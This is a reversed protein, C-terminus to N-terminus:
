ENFLDDFGLNLKLNNVENVILKKGDKREEFLKLKKVLEEKGKFIGKVSNEGWPMAFFLIGVIEEILYPHFDKILGIIKMLYQDEEMEKLIERCFDKVKLEDFEEKFSKLYKEGLGNDFNLNSEEGSDQHPTQDHDIRAGIEFLYHVFLFRFDDGFAGLMKLFVDKVLDYDEKKQDEYKFTKLKQKVNTMSLFDDTERCIRAYHQYSKAILCFGRPKKTAADVEEFSDFLKKIDCFYPPYKYRAVDLVLVLNRKLNVGGIPSFHGFGTQNLARRSSNTVLFFGDRRASAMCCDFFTDFCATKKMISTSSHHNGSPCDLTSKDCAVLTKMSNHYFMQISCYNRKALHTFKEIDIEDLYDPHSCGLSEESYWRWIGKWITKPDIVLANLCMTLTTAGCTSPKYQTKFQEILPFFCEMNGEHLAETFVQKGFFSNLQILIGPLVRKYVSQVRPLQPPPTSNTSFGFRFRLCTFLPSRVLFPM